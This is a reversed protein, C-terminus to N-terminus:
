EYSKLTAKDSLSCTGLLNVCHGVQLDAAGVQCRLVPRGTPRSGGVQLAFSASRYTPLQRGAACFQGVQLDPAASRCRLAPRGTPRSGGVQSSDSETPPSTCTINAHAMRPPANIFIAVNLQNDKHNNIHEVNRDKYDIELLSYPDDTFIGFVDLNYVALVLSISPRPTTPYRPADLSTNAPGPYDSLSTSLRSSTWGAATGSPVVDHFMFTAPPSRPMASPRMPKVQVHTWTKTELYVDSEERCVTCEYPYTFVHDEDPPPTTTRPTATYRYVRITIRSIYCYHAVGFIAVDAAHVNHGDDYSAALRCDALFRGDNRLVDAITSLPDSYYLVTPLTPNSDEQTLGDDLLSAGRPVNQPTTHISYPKNKMTRHKTRVKLHKMRHDFTDKAGATFRGTIMGPTAETYILDMGHDTLAICPSNSSLSMTDNWVTDCHIDYRKLLDRICMPEDCRIQLLKTDGSHSKVLLTVSHPEHKCHLQFITHSDCATTKADKKWGKAAVLANCDNVHRYFSSGSCPTTLTTYTHSVTKSADVYSDLITDFWGETMVVCSPDVWLNKARRLLQKKIANASLTDIQMCVITLHQTPLQYAEAEWRTLSWKRVGSDEPSWVNIHAKPEWCWRIALTIYEM